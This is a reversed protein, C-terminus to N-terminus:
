PTVDTGCGSNVILVYAEGAALSVVDIREGFGADLTEHSFSRRAESANEIGSFSVDTRDRTGHLWAGIGGGLEFEREVVGGPMVPIRSCELDTSEGPRAAGIGIQTYEPGGASESCDLFSLAVPLALLAIRKV